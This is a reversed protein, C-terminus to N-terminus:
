APKKPKLWNKYDEIISIRELIQEKLTGSVLDSALLVSRFFASTLIALNGLLKIISSVTIGQEGIILVGIAVLLVTRSIISYVAEQNIKQDINKEFSSKSHKGNTGAVVMAYTFQVVDVKLYELNNNIYEDTLVRQIQRKKQCYKNDLKQSETGKSWIYIDEDSAKYDLKSEIRKYKEKWATIKFKINKEVLYETLHEFGENKAKELLNKKLIQIEPDRKEYKILYEKSTYFFVLWVASSTILIPLWFEFKLIQSPDFEVSVFALGGILLFAVFNSIWYPLSTYEPLYKRVEREFKRQSEVQRDVFSKDEM